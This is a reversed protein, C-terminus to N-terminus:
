RWLENNHIRSILSVDVDFMDAIFRYNRKRDRPVYWDKLLVRILHVDKKSLKARPTKTEKTDTM